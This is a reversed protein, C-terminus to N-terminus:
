PLTSVTCTYRRVVTAAVSGLLLPKFRRRGHTSIVILDARETTAQEVITSSAAGAQAILMADPLVGVVDLHRRMEAVAAERTLPTTIHVPQGLDGRIPMPEFTPVVHLVTLQAQYWRALAVAHALSRTSSESFDVPSLIRTFEIM